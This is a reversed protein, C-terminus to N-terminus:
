ILLFDLQELFGDFQSFAFTDDQRAMRTVVEADVWFGGPPEDGAPKGHADAGWSNLCYCGPRAPDDDVGVFCMQHAWSGRPVGWHKGKDLAPTMLFGQMSAVTVPYGNCVADRVQEYTTVQAYTKVPHKKGLAVLDEPPGPARGWRQDLSGPWSVTTGFRDESVTPKVPVGPADHPLVGFTKLAEAMWAGVGGDGAIRFGGVRRMCGYGYPECTPVRKEADGLRAIEWASLYQVANDGGHGVCSGVQQRLTPLHRGGNVKKAAEWLLARKGETPRTQGAIAFVSLSSLIREVSKRQEATRNRPPLYGFRAKPPTIRPASM